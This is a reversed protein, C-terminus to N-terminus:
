GTALIREAVSIDKKTLGTKYKTRVFHGSKQGNTMDDEDDFIVYAGCPHTFLFNEILEGRTPHRDNDSYEYGAISLEIPCRLGANYLRQRTNDMDLRWSSSIVIEAGTRKVLGYLLRVARYDIDMDYSTYQLDNEWYYRHWDESNLVGDIDLFIYKTTKRDM